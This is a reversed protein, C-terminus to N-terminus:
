PATPPLYSKVRTTSEVRCPCDDAALDPFWVLGCSGSTVSLHCSVHCEMAEHFQESFSGDGGGASMAERQALLSSVLDTVQEIDGDDLITVVAMNQKGLSAGGGANSLSLCFNMNADPEVDLIIPV